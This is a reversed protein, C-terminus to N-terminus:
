EWIRTITITATTGTLDKNPTTYTLTSGPNSSGDDYYKIGEMYSYGTFTFHLVQVWTNGSYTNTTEVPAYSGVVIEWLDYVGGDGTAAENFPQNSAIKTRGITKRTDVRSQEVWEACGQWDISSTVHNNVYALNNWGDPYGLPDSSQWKALEPRYNRFLFAYGLGEVKPTARRVENSASLSAGSGLAWHLISTLKETTM